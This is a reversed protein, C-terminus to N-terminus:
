QLRVSRLAHPPVSFTVRNSELAVDGAAPQEDLRVAVASSAQFGLHLAAKVADGGPNLVRVILGDGDEASKVASLLLTTPEVRLLSAGAALLPTPGALVGQFGIEADYAAVPDMGALLSFHASLAGPLQAADTTMFPGAPVPRSRLDFRALWGVARLLTIAITGSSTVEAEPLGSAVVTLGNASVWGHHPFTTPAPHVWQTADPPATSRQTVDFTTAAHFGPAPANTPFLLRLRHDCATNHVQVAIDVRPVGPAVSAEFHIELPLLASSRGERQPDLEAPVAFTRTVTLRQMGAPHRLRQWTVSRLDVRAGGDAADFDYTDGRDGQDEVALLGHFTRDGFHVDLTGDDSVRVGLDGAGITTGGDVQDPSAPARKLTYRRWGFAPLDKAVFELDAPGAGPLWRTRRPDASLLVRAPQNDVTFGAGDQLALPLPHLDPIGASVRLATPVDLPVRVIDTRTHPSPNFVAVEQDVTWPVDRELGRGALRELVRTLTERAVGEAADFRASVANAVADISCGCLSDHAQNKLVETWAAVLTPREDPLGFLRAFAAWPELWAQLLVECRRNQLKIPMRTSWVGPTLNAIRAGTLEGQFERRNTGDASVADELLGCQVRWGTANALAAAVAGVHSDPFMHDIGNMLLVPGDQTEALQLAVDKLRRVAEDIDTPLSAANLYGQPLLTAVVASGDPGVWRYVSGLRDIETGNGRWYVFTRIGFGALIQPMQAPHGFSDPVYGILSVGGFSRGVRRGHLLNRVHAEGSPLLSDPQVYWPGISLRQGGIHRELAERRRPRVALYDELVVAQGDLLFRYDPDADLLELVRDIADVLRARFAEFTRYWERDWHFHSVVVCHM